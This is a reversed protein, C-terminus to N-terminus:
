RQLPTQWVLTGATLGRYEVWPPGFSNVQNKNTFWVQGSYVNFLYVADKFEPAPYPRFWPLSGPGEPVFVVIRQTGTHIMVRANAPIFPRVAPAIMSPLLTRLNEMSGLSAQSQITRRIDDLRWDDRHDWASAKLIATIGCFIASANSSGRTQAGNSFSVRSDNIWLDPKVRGDMTPGQASVPGVEGVTLVQPHDAPPFIEYGETRDDFKLSGPKENILHVRLQDKSEFNGSADKIVIRYKGRPLQRVSITERAYKSRKEAEGEAKAVVEGGDQILESSGIIKDNADYIFLNLDKKTAITETDSFDNWNLVISVPNEDLLNEFELPAKRALHKKVSQNYVLGGHNGAANIWIAGSDIARSVQANIFGKGDFNGGFSWNQAYLVLDVKQDIIFQIAARFNSFGNANILYFKPGEANKGTMAWVIQAMSLGHASPLQGNVPGEILEASDPLMGSKASYGMFGNDLIAIKVQSLSRPKGYPTLGEARRLEDSNVVEVSASGVVSVSVTVTVPIFIALFRLFKM